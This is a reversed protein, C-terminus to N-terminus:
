GYRAIFDNVKKMIEKEALRKRREGEFKIHKIESDIRAKAVSDIAAGIALGILPLAIAVFFAAGGAVEAIAACGFFSSILGYMCGMSANENKKKERKEIAKELEKDIDPIQQLYAGIEAMFIETYRRDEEFSLDIDNGTLTKITKLTKYLDVAKWTTGCDMCVNSHRDDGTVAGVAGGVVGFLAWGAVARGWNIDSNNKLQIHNSGCNPCHAM